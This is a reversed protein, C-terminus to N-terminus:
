RFPMRHRRPARVPPASICASSRTWSASAEANQSKSAHLSVSHCVQSLILLVVCICKAPKQTVSKETSFLGNRTPDPDAQMFRVQQTKLPPQRSQMQQAEWLVCTSSSRLLCKDKKKNTESTPKKTKHPHNTSTLKKNQSPPQDFRTPLRVDQKKSRRYLARYRYTQVGEQVGTSKSGSPWTGPFM